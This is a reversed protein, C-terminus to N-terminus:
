SPPSNTIRVKIPKLEYLDENTGILLLRNSTSPTLTIYEEYDNYATCLYPLTYVPTAYLTANAIRMNKNPATATVYLTQTNDAGIFVGMVYKYTTFFTEYPSGDMVDLSPEIAMYSPNFSGNVAFYREHQGSVWSSAPIVTLESIMFTELQIVGHPNRAFVISSDITDYPIYKVCETQNLTTCGEKEKDSLLFMGAMQDYCSQSAIDYEVRNLFKFVYGPLKNLVDM